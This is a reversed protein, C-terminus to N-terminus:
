TLWQTLAKNVADPTELVPLHGTGQLTIRTAHPILQQMLDHRAPPCLQDMDGSLILTPCTVAALTDTQDRRGALARSQRIFVDPGLDAAMMACLDALAPDPQALYRPIFIDAMLGALDGSAARDMQPVRGAQVEPTEALPNTAILALRAVRDPAQRLVEMAVIGGMSLGALAFIPPAEALVRAAMATITDDRSLDAVMISRGASLHAIQPAFLRADCMMGPLLVLPPTLGAM